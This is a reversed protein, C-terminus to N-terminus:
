SNDYIYESDETNIVNKIIESKHVKPLCYFQSSTFKFTILYDIEKKTLISEYKKVHEKLKKFVNKDSDISVEKYANSLLHEKVIKVQYYNKDMIVWGSGKDATKCVIDQNGKLSQLASYEEQTFKSKYSIVNPTLNEIKNINLSLERSKTELNRTWKNRIMKMNLTM